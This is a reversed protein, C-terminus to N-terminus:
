KGRKSQHKARRRIPHVTTPRQLGTQGSTTAVPKQEPKTLSEVTTPNVPSARFNLLTKALLLHLNVVNQFGRICSARLSNAHSWLQVMLSGWAQTFRAMGLGNVLMVIRKLM